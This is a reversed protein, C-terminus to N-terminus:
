YGEILDIATRDYAHSTVTHCSTGNYMYQHVPITCLLTSKFTTTPVQFIKSYNAHIESLPSCDNEPLIFRILRLLFQVRSNKGFLSFLTKLSIIM